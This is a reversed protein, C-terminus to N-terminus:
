TNQQFREPGSKGWDKVISKEPKCKICDRYDRTEVSLRSLCCCPILTSEALDVLFVSAQPGSLTQLVNQVRARYWCKDSTRRVVCMQGKGLPNTIEPTKRDRFHDNLKGMFNPHATPQAWFHGADIVKFINIDM